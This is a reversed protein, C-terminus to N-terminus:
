RRLAEAVRETDASVEQCSSYLAHTLHVRRRGLEAKTCGRLRTQVFGGATLVCTHVPEVVDSLGTDPGMSTRGVCSFGDPDQVASSIWNRGGRPPQPCPCCPASTVVSLDMKADVSEGACWGRVNKCITPWMRHPVSLPLPSLLTRRPHFVPEPGLFPTTHPTAM